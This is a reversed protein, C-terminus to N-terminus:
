RDNNGTAVNMKGAQM